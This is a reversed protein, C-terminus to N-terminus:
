ALNEDYRVDSIKAAMTDTLHQNFIHCSAALIFDRFFEQCGPFSPAPCPGGSSSPQIFREQLRKFKQPNTQKLQSLLSVNEDDGDQKFSADGKCM